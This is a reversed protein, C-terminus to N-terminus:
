EWYANEDNWNSEVPCHIDRDIEVEVPIIHFSRTPNVCVQASWNLGANKSTYIAGSSTTMEAKGDGLAVINSPEGPLQVITESCTHFPTCILLSKYM